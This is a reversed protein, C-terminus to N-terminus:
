VNYVIHYLVTDLSGQTMLEASSCWTNDDPCSAELGKGFSQFVIAHKQQTVLM